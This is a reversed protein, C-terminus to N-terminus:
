KVVKLVGSRSGQVICFTEPNSPFPIEIMGEPKDAAYLLVGAFSYVSIREAKGSEVRLIDGAFYATFPTSDISEVSTVTQTVHVPVTLVDEEIQTNDSLRFDLNTITAEYSGQQVEKSAKYAIDMIKRYESSAASARLGKSKIEILWTNNARATFSLTFNGALEASLVTLEEDLAMGNPFSVELSGTLTAGNPISLSLTIKGNGETGVTQTEEPVVAPPTPPPNEGTAAQTVNITKAEVGTGSVTVIGTRPATATNAAAIVRINGGIVTDNQNIIGDANLDSLTLWSESSSATWNVNSTIAFTKEGGAGAFELSSLSISLAPTPPVTTENVTVNCTAKHNGDETTVTITATGAAVATVKGNTDVTAVSTNSSSWSVNKNTANNPSVTATLQQTMATQLTAGAASLSVGTVNVTTTAPANVTVECTAKHNGDETTVTITAKGAAVATVKGNTDVTAVSTNSSTWSVNKNTANNPSVTATLQLTMGTQLTAGAASLSVGTVNVTTPATGDQTVTVTKPEIGVHGFVKFTTTRETASTNADAVVTVIMKNNIYDYEYSVPQVWSVYHYVGYGTASWDLNTMIAFTNTGGEATFHLSSTSVALIPEEATVTVRCAASHLGNTTSVTINTTGPSVATVLGNADVKAISANDSNWLVTAGEPSVTATLQLTQGAELVAEKHNLSVDTGRYFEKWVDAAMYLAEKGAPVHLTCNKVGEFADIYIGSNPQPNNLVSQLPTSWHVTVNRLSACASFSHGIATVSAPIDISTLGSGSFAGQGIFTVGNPITISTLAGCGNFTFGEIDTQSEPITISTLSKCSQFAGFRINTVSEPVSVSTLNHCGNFAFSGISTVGEAIIVSRVKDAVSAWPVDAITKIDPMAEASKTTSITMVGAEDLTVTMYVSLNWTQQGWAGMASVILALSLLSKQLFHKM